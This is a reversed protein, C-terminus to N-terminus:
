PQDGQASASKTSHPTPAAPAPHGQRGIDLVRHLLRTAAEVDISERSVPPLADIFQDLARAMYRWNLASEPDTSRAAVLVSYTLEGLAVEFGRWRDLEDPHNPGVMALAKAAALQEFHLNRRSTLSAAQGPDIAMQRLVESLAVLARRFQRRVLLVASPRGGMWLVLLAAAAGIFTELLRSWILEDVPGSTHMAAMLLPMPTIVITALAYHRPALFQTVSAFSIVLGAVVIPAPHLLNIGAFLVVGVATGAVRHLARVTSTVRDTTTSLVLAATMQAWYPHSFQLLTSAAGGLFVALGTRRAALWAPSALSLSWRLLYSPRPSGVYHGAIADDDLTVWPMERRATERFLRLHLAQLDAQLAEAGGPAPRRRSLSAVLSSQAQFLAGYAKDRLTGVEAESAASSASVTAEDLATVAARLDAVHREVAARRDPLQLLISTACGLVMSAATLAVLTPIPVGLRPIYSAACMGMILLMPGPPDTLLAHYGFATITALVAVAVVGYWVPLLSTLAGLAVIITYAVGIRSLVAIRSRQSRDFAGIAVFIGNLGTLALPIGVILSLVGITVVGVALAHLAKWRTGEAPKVEVFRVVERVVLHPM